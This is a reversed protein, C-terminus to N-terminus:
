LAAAFTFVSTAFILVAYLSPDKRGAYAGRDPDPMLGGLVRVSQGDRLSSTSEDSRATDAGFARAPTNAARRGADGASLSCGAVVDM